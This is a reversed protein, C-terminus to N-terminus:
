SRLQDLVRACALGDAFTAARPPATGSEVATTVAQAWRQM